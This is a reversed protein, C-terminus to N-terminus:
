TVKQLEGMVEEVSFPEGRYKLIHQEIHIGTSLQLLKSFQATANNEIVIIQDAKELIKKTNPHLPYTQTYHLLAYDKGNLNEIAEKIPHYTSGWGVVLTKFAKSGGFKPPVIDMVLQKSKNLRKKVMKERVTFDETIHGEEDHEDSDVNVLGRGLGPIGRPSIGEKNLKYRKYDIETQVFYKEVTTKSFDLVSINNYSDLLYQDTLIIVPIQYKDAMNFAKQTLYFADEITAPAYIIRPFEGHGSYLALEFDAQETRTPLGTAPGPRQGIHAVLPSEVMGSLSIGETMLDYGGGSTTVMARAGAYWAGMAMNVVSIEDEAQEVIIDFDASKQALFVAVATSPSMPYFSVFNCGGALAGLAVAEAGTLLLDNAIKSDEKIAIQIKGSKTLSDSIKYGKQIAKINKEIIDMGKSSFIKKVYNELISQDITFLGSIVGAAIINLYIRGGIESAMKSLSIDIIDSTLGKLSDGLIKKEGLIITDSSIRDKLRYIAESSLPVLLDIRDIYASVRKSSVRIETSNIGGRIRSM